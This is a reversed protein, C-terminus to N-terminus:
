RLGDSIYLDLNMESTSPQGRSSLLGHIIVGVCGEGGWGFLTGLSFTGLTAGSTLNDSFHNRQYFSMLKTFIYTSSNEVQWKTEFKAVCTQCKANRLTVHARGGTYLAVRWERHKSYWCSFSAHGCYVVYCNIQGYKNM